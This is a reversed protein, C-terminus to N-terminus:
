ISYKIRIIARLAIHDSLFGKNISKKILPQTFLHERKRVFCSKNNGSRVLIYDFRKGKEGSHLFDKIFTPSNSNGFVDRVKLKRIIVPYLYSEKPINFDGTLIFTKDEELNNIMKGIENICNKYVKTFSNSPLWNHTPNAILHTNALLIESQIKSILIGKGTLINRSIAKLWGKSVFNILMSWPYSYPLYRKNVVKIKSFTVVGGKPGIISKEYVCYPYSRLENRLIQLQRYTFVEQLNIIDAGLDELVIAIKKFRYLTSNKFSPTGKTNFTIISLEM